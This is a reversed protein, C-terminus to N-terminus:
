GNKRSLSVLSDTIRGRTTEPSTNMLTSIETETCGGLYALELADWGLEGAGGRRPRGSRGATSRGGRRHRVAVLHATALVWSQASGRAPDFARARRWTEVFASVTVEEAVLPDEVVCRVLGHVQPALADYLQAFASQDGGASDLLLQELGGTPASERTQRRTM